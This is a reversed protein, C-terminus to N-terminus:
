YSYWWQRHNRGHCKLRCRGSFLGKDEFYLDGNSNPSVINLDFNILHSNNTSNGQSSSIGHPDHCANCPTDEGRIHVDHEGFSNDSLISTRSHCSYCLEYNTSSETTYDATE